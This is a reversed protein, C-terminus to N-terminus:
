PRLGFGFRLSTSSTLYLIPKPEKLDLGFGSRDLGNGVQIPGSHNRKSEPIFGSRNGLRM